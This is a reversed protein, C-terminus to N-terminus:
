AEQDQERSIEGEDDHRAPTSVATSTSRVPTTQSREGVNAAVAANLDGHVDVGGFAKRIRRQIVKQVQMESNEGM